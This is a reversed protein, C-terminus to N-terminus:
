ISPFPRWRQFTEIAEYEAMGLSDYNAANKQNLTAAEWEDQRISQFKRIANLKRELQIPSLPVAMDIEHDALPREKGRYLWVRCHGSWEGNDKLIWAERLARFCLAQLSTPEAVDGTAFIQHPRLDALVSATMATDDERLNFRRYRGLEYFPLDLFRIKAELLGCAEAADRAEGRLILGKLHRVPVPDVGFEGKEDLFGQIKRAYSQQEPWPQSGSAIDELIIAFKRAEMDAVRLNGSTQCVLTVDHGQEVLRELTGGMAVVADQPEPSFVVVRKRNPQAREPRHSDDAGPKGGPWGTITHQLQNFVGINVDYAGGHEALVDAMGNENYDEDVLKLVPKGTKRALWVVAKRMMGSSWHVPGVLWPCRNRTLCSAATEDVIFTANEHLQLFSASIADTVQGEVAQALIEAKNEGWAMLVVRRAKMITGVGITIAFRPVNSEGLFDAAADRRTLRDLAIMRTPSDQASGPENFGIHGTRGIGLIQLDIGGFSAIRREYEQCYEYVDETKITGDPINVQDSPMDVHDFLQDHMFRHYSEPHDRRLGHYEDLNFSIVNRFSLGEERHLRILERYFPVPTSGTALGIVFPREPTAARILVAVEEALQRSPQISDAFEVVRVREFRERATQRREGSDLISTAVAGIIAGGKKQSLCCALGLVM